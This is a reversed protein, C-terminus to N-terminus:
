VIFLYEGVRLSLNMFKGQFFIDFWNFEFYRERNGGGLFVLFYWIGFFVFWVWSYLYVFFEM